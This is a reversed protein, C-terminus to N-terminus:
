DSSGLMWNIHIMGRQLPPLTQLASEVLYFGSSIMDCRQISLEM